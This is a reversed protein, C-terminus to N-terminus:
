TSLSHMINSYIIIYKQLELSSASLINVEETLKEHEEKM